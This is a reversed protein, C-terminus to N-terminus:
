LLPEYTPQNCHMARHDMPEIEFPALLLSLDWVKIKGQMDGTIVQVVHKPEEGHYGDETEQEVVEFDFVTFDRPEQEGAAIADQEERAEATLQRRRRRLRSSKAKSDRTTTFVEVGTIPVASEFQSSDAPDVPWPDRGTDTHPPSMGSAPGRNIIRVLLTGALRSPPLAWVHMAGSADVTLVMPLATGLMEVDTVADRHGKLELLPELDTFRWVRVTGDAAGSVVVNLERDFSMALIDADHANEAIRLLPMSEAYRDSYVRIERDWSATVFCADTEANVIGTVDDNHMHVPKKIEFGSMVNLVVMNGETDGALVKRRRHDLCMEVIPEPLIDNSENILEGTHADYVLVDAGAAVVFSELVDSYLVRHPVPFTSAVASRRFVHVRDSIGVM